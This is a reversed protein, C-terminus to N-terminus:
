PCECKDTWIGMAAECAKQDTDCDCKHVQMDYCGSAAGDGSAAAPEEQAHDEASVPKAPADIKAWQFRPYGATGAKDYYGVLKIKFFTEETSRLVYVADSPSVQHDSPNYDYWPEPGLFAFNPDGAESKSSVADSDEVYGSDPAAGLEDFDAGKLKAVVVDGDGSDGGNPKIKFRSFALDWDSSDAEVETNKDLDFHRYAENASANVTTERVGDSKDRTVVSLQASADGDDDTKLDDACASAALAFLLLSSRTSSM